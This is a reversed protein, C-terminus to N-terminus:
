LSDRGPEAEKDKKRKSVIMRMVEVGMRREEM